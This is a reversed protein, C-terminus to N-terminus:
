DSAVDEFTSDESAAEPALKMAQQREETWREVLVAPVDAWEFHKRRAAEGRYIEGPGACFFFEPRYTREFEERWYGELERAEEETLLGNEYLTSREVDFGPYPFPAAFAWWAQPRRGASGWRQFLREGHVAWAAAAAERSSFASGLRPSPALWLEMEATASLADPSPMGDARLGLRNLIMQRKKGRVGDRQLSRRQKWGLECAAAYCSIAGSEIARIWNTRGERKLRALIHARSNSGPPAGPKPPRGPGRRPESPINTM